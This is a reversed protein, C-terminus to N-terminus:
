SARYAGALKRLRWIGDQSGTEHPHYYRNQSWSQDELGGAPRDVAIYRQQVGGLGAASRASDAYVIVGPQIRLVIGVHDTQGHSTRILDGPRALGAEAIRVAVAPHTLRRVNVISAADFRWLRCAQALSVDGSLEAGGGHRWRELLEPLRLNRERIEEESVVLEEDLEIGYEAALWEQLVHYVFGSCDIGLGHRRMLLRWDEASAPRSVEQRAAARAARGLELASGKGRLPTELRFPETASNLWYPAWVHLGNLTLRYRDIYYRLKM